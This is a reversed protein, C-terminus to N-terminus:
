VESKSQSVRGTYKLPDLENLMNKAYISKVGIVHFVYHWPQYLSCSSTATDLSILCMWVYTGRLITILARTYTGIFSFTLQPSPPSLPTQHPPPLPQLDSKFTPYFKLLIPLSLFHCFPLLLRANQLSRM